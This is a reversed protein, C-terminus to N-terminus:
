SQEDVVDWRVTDGPLCDVVHVWNGPQLYLPRDLTLKTQGNPNGANLVIANGAPSTLRAGHVYGTRTIIHDRCLVDTGDTSVVRARGLNTTVDLRLRQTGESIADVQQVEYNRGRTDIVIRDGANIGALGDVDITCSDGDVAAITGSRVPEAQDRHAGDLQRLAGAGVLTVRDNDAVALAGTLVSGDDFSTEDATGSEPSWWIRWRRGQQTSLTIAVSGARDGGHIATETITADGSRPEYILDVHSIDQAAAPTRHWAVARYDYNSEEVTCMIATARATRLQAGDSADLVHLDLATDAHAFNWTGCFGDAQSVDAVDDFWALGAHDPHRLRTKDGREGAPNALTGDRGSFTVEESTFTGEPGRCIRWHEDGGQVRSLDILAVGDDDTDLLALLRRYRVDLPRWGDEHAQWRQAQLELLQVGDGQYVRVLRGRGAVECGADKVTAWVTNHTAWHGEWDARTAWSQPYGLDSLFPQDLAWLQVDLLDVHRHGISDGYIIGAAAREPTGTSRVVALGAGDLVTLGREIPQRDAVQQALRRVGPDQTLRAARELTVEPLPTYYEDQPMRRQIAPSNMSPSAGGGDGYGLYARGLLTIDHPAQAVRAARPDATLSEFQADPYADPHDQKLARLHHELSFLGNAHISNYGGTSEPPTGDPFFDNSTFVRLQDPGDDYLWRLVDQGDDRQLGRLLVLGGESVRPLNSSAGGDLHAQLLCALMEEILQIAAQPSDIALGCARARTVIEDDDVLLPWVTDYAVALTDAIYPTDICYRQTGMRYLAAIPDAAAGWDTQGTMTWEFLRETGLTPGYRFQPAAGVYVEEEAYRLLLLALQRAAEPAHQLGVHRVHGALQGIAAGFARTQDRCYTAAFLYLVGDPDVYGYGDDNIGSGDGVYDGAMLDNEPVVLGCSPCTSRFDAPTHSRQWPYFGGHRFIATGCQPCGEHCNAFHSRPWEAPPLQRWLQADSADLWFALQEASPVPLTVDTLTQGTKRSSWPQGTPWRRPWSAGNFQFPERMGALQRVEIEVAAETSPDTAVVRHRGSVAPAQLYLYLTEDRADYRRSIESLGDLDITISDPDVTRLPLRFSRGALLLRPSWAFELTASAM